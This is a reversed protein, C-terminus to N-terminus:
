GESIDSSRRAALAGSSSVVDPMILEDPDVAPVQKQKELAAQQLQVLATYAGRPDAILSDHTGQEAIVGRQVVCIKDANRVTSLRHAVVVTTRGVM